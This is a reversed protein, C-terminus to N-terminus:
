RHEGLAADVRRCLERGYETWRGEGWYRFCSTQCCLLHFLEDRYARDRPSLGLARVREAFRTSASEMPGLVSGYGRVWSIDNTWSGGDMHFRRDERELEAIVASLRDPGDGPDMRSWVQHQHVPQIPPLDRETIGLSALHELYESINVPRTPGDSAIASIELYKPPFENMMVNGNEGDSIQTVIPPVAHGALTIPALGRAQSYPQMQGVLKTDSGHTKVIATIELENGHSCRAVLRHPRHPFELERGDEVREVTHEQVLVWRFGADKLTKVFAYFVDPHNPLAMEVPSFGRVRALADFGFVDAFQHQWASVHHRYDLPPTSPAVAHGWPCGLWEVCPGTREDLTLTRLRDPIDGRGMTRLGHLLCGSYDLMIRPRKGQNVLETILDSMREYCWLFVPANHNDGESPHDLMYELNSIVRANRPDDGGAPILPQHMHLAIAFASKADSLDQPTRARPTSPNRAMTQIVQPEKGCISPEPGIDPIPAHEIM